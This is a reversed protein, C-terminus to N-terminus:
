FAFFDALFYRWVLSVFLLAISALLVKRVVSAGAKIAIRSGLWNGLMNSCAMPIALYYLVQGSIMFSILAGLNSALNFVKATATAQLMEMRVMVYFIILYFCGAAPGFFGDYTGVIIAALAVRIWFGAGELPAESRARWKKYPLFTILVGVPLLAVLVKGLLDTDLVLALRSGFYSAVLSFGVGVAAVRWVVLHSRAFTILALFTGCSSAFKNSGLTAHPPVGAMLMAPITILGGGGAISDIIGAIFAAICCLVITLM